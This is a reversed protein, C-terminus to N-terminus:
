NACHGCGGGCNGGGDHGGCNGGCNECGGGCGCEGNMAKVLAAMEEATAEHSELITGKFNLTRGALPHNLDVTVKDAGVKVVQAMFREGEANQLQIIAGEYINEHDFKGNHSFIEKGLEMVRAEVHEGYAKEAPLTIDFDAGNELEALQKELEDLAIGMGSIFHFPVNPQTEEILEHKGNTVDYLKYSARIYKNAM